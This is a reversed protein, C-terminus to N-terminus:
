FALNGTGMRLPRLDFFTFFPLTLSPRQETPQQLSVRPPQRTLLQSSTKEHIHMGLSSASPESCMTTCREILSPQVQDCTMHLTPWFRIYEGYIVTYKTIKRGFTGYMFRIYITTALGLGYTWIPTNYSKTENADHSATPSSNIFLSIFFPPVVSFRLYFALTIAAYWKQQLVFVTTWTNYVSSLLKHNRGPHM